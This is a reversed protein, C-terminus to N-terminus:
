SDEKNDNENEENGDLSEDLANIFKDKFEDFEQNIKELFDEKTKGVDWIERDGFDNHFEAKSLEDAILDKDKEAEKLWSLANEKLKGKEYEDWKGAIRIKHEMKVVCDFCLGHIARMKEDLRKPIGCTCTEKPCNKFAKLEQRLEDMKGLKIKYGQKQEWKNGDDDVWTDGVERTIHEKQEGPVAISIKNQSEHQGHVLKKVDNIGDIKIDSM